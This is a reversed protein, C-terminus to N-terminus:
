DGGHELIRELAETEVAFHEGTLWSLPRARSNSSSTNAWTQTSPSIEL